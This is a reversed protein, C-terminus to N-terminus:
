EGRSITICAWVLGVAFLGFGACITWMGMQPNGRHDMEMGIAVVMYGAMLTLYPYVNLPEAKPHRNPKM